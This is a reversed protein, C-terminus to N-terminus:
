EPRVAAPADFALGDVSAEGRVGDKRFALRITKGGREFRVGVATASEVRAASWPERRGARHPVIVTLMGVEARKERTGAEVHWLNPFERTPKPEYGDWQRFTLPAPSLYRAEAGAKPLDVRLAAGKEDVDFARPAHLMFQFSSPEKAVLDDYVALVDPKAFLLHRRYRLLRGGYADAADGAVYDWDRGLRSEVIRGHPAPTYKAQGRGDVLVANQSITEHCWGTHFKSGHLDRYVCAPFVAEGYANLQFSNHANHGHSQTGFPSSKFLVHVDDRSDALTVHLSAVGTGLFVKSPPLDEPSRPEPLPGLNTEYLFGLIGGEGTMGWRECWWRWYRARDGEPRSGMSRLFFEMFGGWGESPARFSNDGFGVNPSGPPAVYLPYDGVRAFYPKRFGDIGLASQAVQLWAVDKAAYGAWYAVGQHWGGDDDSWVPFTAYFKNVAFDLWTEAEPVDGLLAIANEALKHFTRQGHSSYPSNLHGVGEGVERHKWADLARRRAVQRVRERDEPTLAEYAWDYARPLRHLIPKAAECNVFFNTPGDVNWSALHLIWRRAAEGYRKEGTLLYVFALTEAEQCAKLTRVRNPWWDAATKPDKLDGMTAPEPTPRGELLADAEARLKAFSPAAKGRAATRVRPLDEPRLFLRPHGKPVRERQQSRTPMPFAVADPPVVFRRPASWGSERGDKTAFRYRWVYSGPPLTERHTYTNWPVGSVSVAEAFDERASWQVTYTHAEREHLWTLSPPNLRVAGGDAPRYGIEGPEAPRNPIEQPAVGFGLLLLISIRM